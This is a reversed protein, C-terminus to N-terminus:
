KSDFVTVTGSADKVGEDWRMVYFYTGAAVKKGKMNVGNWTNDYNLTKYVVRGWRNYITMTFDYPDYGSSFFPQFSQNFEDGDPTFTNPLYFILEEHTSILMSISDVCGM